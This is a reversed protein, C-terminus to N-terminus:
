FRRVGKGNGVGFPDRVVRPQCRTARPRAGRCRRAASRLDARLRHWGEHGQGDVRARGFWSRPHVAPSAAIRENAAAVAESGVEYKDGYLTLYVNTGSSVVHGGVPFGVASANLRWDFKPIQRGGGSVYPGSLRVGLPGPLQSVGRPQLRLDIDTQASTIPHAAAADLMAEPNVTKHDSGGCGAANVVAVLLIALITRSRMRACRLPAPSIGAIRPKPKPGTPLRLRWPHGRPSEASPPPAPPRRTTRSTATGRRSGRPARRGRARWPRRRAPGAQEAQEYKETALAKGKAARDAASTLELAARTQGVPKQLWGVEYLSEAFLKNLQPSFNKEATALLDTAEKENKHQLAIAVRSYNAAPTDPSLEFKALISDVMNENGQLLYTLLIKYQILQAAEGQLSLRTERSCLTSVSGRRRGTRGCSHSRRWTSARMGSNRIPRSPRRCRWRLRTM